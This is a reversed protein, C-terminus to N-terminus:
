KENDNKVFVGDVLKGNRKSIIEYVKALCDEASLGSCAAGVIVTVIIDGYADAVSEKDNRALAAALEGVEEITKLLQRTENGHFIIGKNRGWDRVVEFLEIM